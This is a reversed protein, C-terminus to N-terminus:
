YLLKSYVCSSTCVSSISFLLATPHNLMHKSSIGVHVGVKFFCYLGLTSGWRSFVICDWLPGGDQFFLVIGFHVGM